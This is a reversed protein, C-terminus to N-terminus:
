RASASHATAFAHCLASRVLRGDMDIGSGFAPHHDRIRQAEELMPRPEVIDRDAGGEGTRGRCRHRHALADLRPDRMLRTGALVLGPHAPEGEGVAIADGGRRDGGHLRPEGIAPRQEGAM